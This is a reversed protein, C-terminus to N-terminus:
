CLARMGHVTMTLVMPVQSIYISIIPSFAFHLKHIRMIKRFRLKSLQITFTDIDLIRAEEDVGRGIIRSSSFSMFNADQDRCVALAAVLAVEEFSIKFWADKVSSIPLKESASTFMM